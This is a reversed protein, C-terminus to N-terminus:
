LQAVKARADRSRRKPLRRRSKRGMREDGDEYLVKGLEMIERIFWDEFRLRKRIEAPSRVLLDLAFRCEVQTRIEIAQETPHGRHAMVVLLDVDSDAGANGRAHSGFLIIRTPNFKDAVTRAFTRIDRM